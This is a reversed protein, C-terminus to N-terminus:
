RNTKRRRFRCTGAVIGVVSVMVLSSPEPVAAVFSPSSSNLLFRGHETGNVSIGLFRNTGDYGDFVSSSLLVDAGLQYAVVGDQILSTVSESYLLDLPNISTPDNYLNFVLDRTGNIPNGNDDLLRGGFFIPRGNPAGSYTEVDIYASISTADRVQFGSGNLTMGSSNLAIRGVSLGEISVDLFRNDGFYGDFVSSDLIANTGLQHSIIGDQISATVTEFHLIDGPNTSTADSYLTFAIDKMGNLQVGNSDLIRGSFSLTRGGPGGSYTTVDTYASISTANRIQAGSAALTRGSSNLAIRGASVGDVAVDLFRNTGSYGDFILSSVTSNGLKHAIVGGQISATITEVYLPGVMSTADEYLSFSLNRVGSVPAGNSDVLSGSFSLTRGGPAGSYTQTDAYASLVTVSTILDGFCCSDCTAATCLLSVAVLKIFRM